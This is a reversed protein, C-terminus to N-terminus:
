PQAAGPVAIPSSAETSPDGDLCPSEDDPNCMGPAALKAFVAEIMARGEPDLRGRVESMGDSQQKGIILYRRRARDGDTLEGDQDLLMALRHAAQAYSRPNTGARSRPWSRRRWCAPRPISSLRCGSSSGGTITVHEGGIQGRQQAAATCPLMPELVEGTLAQRPALDRAEHIRRGAESKSIRLSTALATAANTEGLEAVPATALEAVLRHGVVAQSRTVTEWQAALALREATTLADFPEAMLEAVEAAIGAIRKRIREGDM